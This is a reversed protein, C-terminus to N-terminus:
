WVLFTHMRASCNLVECHKPSWRTCPCALQTGIRRIPVFRRCSAALKRGIRSPSCLQACSCRSCPTNQRTSWEEAACQDVKAKYCQDQASTQHYGSQGQIKDRAAQTGHLVGCKQLAGSTDAHEFVAIVSIACMKGGLTKEFTVVSLGGTRFWPPHLPHSWIPVISHLHKIRVLSPISGYFIRMVDWHKNILVRYFGM